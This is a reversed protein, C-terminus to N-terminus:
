SSRTAYWSFSTLVRWPAPTRIGSSVLRFCHGIFPIIQSDVGRYVTPNITSFSRTTSQGGIARRQAIPLSARFSQSSAFLRPARNCHNLQFALMLVLEAVPPVEGLVPIDHLREPHADHAPVRLEM